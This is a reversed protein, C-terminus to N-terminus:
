AKPHEHEMMWTGCNRCEVVSDFPHQLTTSLQKDKWVAFKVSYGQNKPLAINTVIEDISVTTYKVPKLFRVAWKPTWREKVADWWTTPWKYTALEHCPIHAKFGVTIYRSLPNAIEELLSPMSIYTRLMSEDFRTLAALTKLLFTTNTLNTTLPDQPEEM